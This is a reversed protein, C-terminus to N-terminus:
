VWSSRAATTRQTLRSVGNGSAAAITLATMTSSPNLRLPLFIVSAMVEAATDVPASMSSGTANTGSVSVIAERGSPRDSDSISCGCAVPWQPPLSRCTM